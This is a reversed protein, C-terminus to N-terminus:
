REIVRQLRDFSVPHLRPQLEQFLNVARHRGEDTSCLAAFVSEIYRRRGVGTIFEVLDAGSEVLRAVYPFVEATRREAVIDLLEALLEDDILGLSDRVRDATVPGDGFAAAQDLLSLADRLGGAAVRAILTLAAEDAELTERDAVSRLLEVIAQPGVRRFDFRQLRSMVPAATNAIKQLRM